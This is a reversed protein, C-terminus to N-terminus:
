KNRKTSKQGQSKNKQVEEVVIYCVSTHRVRASPRRWSLFCIWSRSSINSVDGAQDGRFGEGIKNTKQRLTIAPYKKLIGQITLEIQHILSMWLLHTTYEMKFFLARLNLNYMLLIPHEKKGLQLHSTLKSAWTTQKPRAVILSMIKTQFPNDMLVGMQFELKLLPMLYSSNFSTTSEIILIQWWKLGM